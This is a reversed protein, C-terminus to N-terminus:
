DEDRGGGKALEVIENTKVGGHYKDDVVVVPAMACAGLCNVVEVTLEGDETTQGPEVKFVRRLEDVLSAAGRIHCATGMCIKVVRKGRPKLSFAKYFTSVSFVKSLPVQLVEAVRELAECPLFNFEKQVDQLVMILSSEDKPYKEM